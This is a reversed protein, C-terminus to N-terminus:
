LVQKRCISFQGADRCVQPLGADLGSLFTSLIVRQVPVLAILDSVWMRAATTVAAAM